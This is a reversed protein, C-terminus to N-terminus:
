PGEGALIGRLAQAAAGPDVAGLIASGVAARGVRELQEANTLDIGGIPFVPVASSEAVVWAREPGVPRPADGAAAATGYGKTATPFVPGFGLTDVPEDWAAAVQSADHTSLGILAAAGVVARAVAPPTDGTGLHVGDVGDRALARAVDVRDNVMVLPPAPVLCAACVDLVRRAWEWAALAGTPGAGAGVAKPRVQVVDVHPLAAELPALPDGAALDPTFILLLRASRLRERREDGPSRDSM